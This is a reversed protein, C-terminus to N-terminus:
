YYRKASSKLSKPRRPPHIARPETLNAADKYGKRERESPVSPLRGHTEARPGDMQTAIGSEACAARLVLGGRGSM